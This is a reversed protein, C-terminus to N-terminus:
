DALRVSPIMTTEVEVGPLSFGPLATALSRLARADIKLLDVLPSDPGRKIVALIAAREDVVVVKTSRRFTVKGGPGDNTEAVIATSTEGDADLRNGSEAAAAVVRRFADEARKIPKVFSDRVRIAQKHAQDAARVTPAFFDEFERRTRTAEVLAAAADDPELAEAAAALAIVRDRATRLGRPLNPNAGTIKKKSM